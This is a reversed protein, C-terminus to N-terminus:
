ASLSGKKSRDKNKYYKNFNTVIIASPLSLIITGVVICVGAAAKSLGSQPVVDGYGVTTM